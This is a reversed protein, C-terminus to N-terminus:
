NTLRRHRIGLAPIEWLRLKGSADVTAVFKANPSLALDDITLADNVYANLWPKTRPLRWLTFDAASSAAALLRGDASFSLAKVRTGRVSRTTQTAPAEPASTRLLTLAAPHDWDDNKQWGGSALFQGDATLALANTAPGKSLATPIDDPKDSPLRWLTRSSDFFVADTGVALAKIAGPPLQPAKLRTFNPQGESWRLLLGQKGVGGAAWLTRSDPSFGCAVLRQPLTNDSALLERSKADWIWVGGGPSANHNGGTAALFRGDPSFALSSVWRPCKLQWRPSLDATAFALIEGKACGVVITDGDPSFVVRYPRLGLDRSLTPKLDSPKELGALRRARLYAGVNDSWAARHPQDGIRVLASRLVAYDQHSAAALALQDLAGVAGPWRLHRSELGRQIRPWDLQRREIWDFTYRPRSIAVTAYIEDRDPAPLNETASALWPGVEPDAFGSLWGAHSEILPVYGPFAAAASFIAAARPRDADRSTLRLHRELALHPCASDPIDNKLAASRARSWTARTETPVDRPDLKRWYLATAAARTASVRGIPSREWNTFLALAQLRDLGLNELAFSEYFYELAFSGDPTRSLDARLPAALADLAAHEESRFAALTDARLRALTDASLFTASTNPATSSPSAPRAPRHACSTLLSSIGVLFVLTIFFRTRPASM